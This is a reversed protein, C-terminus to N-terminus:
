TASDYDHESWLTGDDHFRQYKGVKKGDRYTGKEKTQGNAWWTQYSGHHKGDVFISLDTLRAKHIGFEIHATFSETRTNLKALFM